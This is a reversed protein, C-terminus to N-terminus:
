PDFRLRYYIYMHKSDWPSNQRNQRWFFKKEAGGAETQDTKSIFPPPPAPGGLGEGPDVVSLLAQFRIVEKIFIGWLNLSLPGLYFLHLSMQWM